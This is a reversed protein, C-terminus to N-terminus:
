VLDMAFYADGDQEHTFVFGQRRYFAVVETWSATTELILRRYGASRAREILQALVASGIGERRRHAAVSMRVIEGVGSERPVLTGTGVIVEGELAVLVTANSYSSAIDDLDPNALPDRWGWHEELGELILEKVFDQDAANFRRVRVGAM